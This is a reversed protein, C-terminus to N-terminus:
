SNGLYRIKLENVWSENFSERLKEIFDELYLFDFSSAIKDFQNTEHNYSKFFKTYEKVAKECEINQKPYLYVFFGEKYKVKPNQHKLYSISLLHDRWIQQFPKKQLAAICNNTFVESENTLKDYREKHKAPQDKLNESYKVEIGIFGLENSKLTYKVFVDFASHDETYGSDGRGDSHEFIIETVENIGREPFLERFFNTAKVKNLSLDAFLNFALPQSSLLNTYLRNEEIKAGKEKNKLTEKVVEFIRPNLFNEGKEFARCKEIYNGLCISEGKSNRYQGIPINKSERWKSQLLRAHASFNTDKGILVHFKQLLEKSPRINEINM